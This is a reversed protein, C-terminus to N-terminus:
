APAGEALMAPDLGMAALKKSLSKAAYAFVRVLPLLADSRTSERIWRSSVIKASAKVKREPWTPSPTVGLSVIGDGLM